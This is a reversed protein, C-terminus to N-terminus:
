KQTIVFSSYYIDKQRYSAFNIIGVYFNDFPYTYSLNVAKGNVIVTMEKNRIQVLINTNRTQIHRNYYRHESFMKSRIWIADKSVCVTFSKNDGGTHVEHQPSFGIIIEGEGQLHVDSSIDWNKHADFQQESWFYGKNGVYLRGLIVEFEKSGGFERFSINESLPGNGNLQATFSGQNLLFNGKSLMLKYEDMLDINNNKLEQLLTELNIGYKQCYQECHSFQELRRLEYMYHQGSALTFFWLRPTTVQIELPVIKGKYSRSAHYLYIKLTRWNAKTSDDEYWYTFGRAEVFSNLKTYFPTPDNTVVMCRVLDNLPKARLFLKVYASEPTKIDVICLQNSRDENLSRFFDIAEVLRHHIALFTLWYDKKAQTKISDLDEANEFIFSIDVFNNRKEGQKLGNTTVFYDKMEELLEKEYFAVLEGKTGTIGNFANLRIEQLSKAAM